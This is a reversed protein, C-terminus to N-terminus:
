ANVEEGLLRRFKFATPISLPRGNEANSVTSASVDLLSALQHVTLGKDERYKRILKALKARGNQM